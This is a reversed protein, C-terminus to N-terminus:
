RASGGIWDEDVQVTFTPNLTFSTSNGNSDAQLASTWAGDLLDYSMSAFDAMWGGSVDATVSAGFPVPIPEPGGVNVFVDSGPDATGAVLDNSPDLLTIALRRVTHTLTTTGDTVEVVHGPEVDYEDRFSINFGTDAPGMESKTYDVGPGTDPDDISVTITAPGAWGYIHVHAEYVEVIFHPDAPQAAASPGLAGCILALAALLLLLSGRSRLEVDQQGTIM